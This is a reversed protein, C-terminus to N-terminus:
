VYCPWIANNRKQSVLLAVLPVTQCCKPLKWRLGQSICLRLNHIDNIHRMVKHL